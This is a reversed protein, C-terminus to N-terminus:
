VKFPVRSVAARLMGGAVEVIREIVQGKRCAQCTVRPTENTALNRALVNGLHYPTTILPDFTYGNLCAILACDLLDEGEARIGRKCDCQFTVVM